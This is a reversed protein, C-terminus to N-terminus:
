IVNGEMCFPSAIQNKTFLEIGSSTRGVLRVSPPFAIRTLSQHESVDYNFWVGYFCFGDVAVLQLAVGSMAMYQWTIM